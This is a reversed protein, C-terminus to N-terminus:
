YRKKEVIKGVIHYKVGKKLEIDPYKPNNGGYGQL